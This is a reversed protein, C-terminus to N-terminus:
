EQLTSEFEALLQQYEASSKDIYEFHLTQEDATIIPNGSQLRHWVANESVNYYIAANAISIFCKNDEVCRCPTGRWKVMSKGLKRFREVAEPSPQRPTCRGAKWARNINEKCTVWALNEVRNDDKICNIHDVQPLKDPNPIFAEAVLRHVRFYKPKRVDNYLCVDLYGDQDPTGRMIRGRIKTRCMTGHNNHAKSLRDLSRIRGQNSVQYIGEYGAIDKWVEEM